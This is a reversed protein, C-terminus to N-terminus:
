RREASPARLPAIPQLIRRRAPTLRDLLADSYTYGRRTAGWSGGYRYIAVRREGPNTRLASGHALADVFLLADGAKLHMEMAGEVADMAGREMFGRRFAQHELSSHHSGPIVM